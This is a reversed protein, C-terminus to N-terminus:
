QGKGCDSHWARAVAPNRPFPSPVSSRILETFGASESSQRRPVFGPVDRQRNRCAGPQSQLVSHRTVTIGCGCLMGLSVVRSYALSEAAHWGFPPGTDTSVACRAPGVTRLRMPFREPCLALQAMLHGGFGEGFGRPGSMSGFEPEPRLISAHLMNWVGLGGSPGPAAGTVM